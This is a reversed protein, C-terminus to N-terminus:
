RHRGYDDRNRERFEKRQEPYYIYDYWFERQRRMEEASDDRRSRGDGFIMGAAMVAVLLWFCILAFMTM